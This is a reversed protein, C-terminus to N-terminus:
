TEPSYSDYFLKDKDSKLGLPNLLKQLREVEIILSEKKSSEEDLQACINDKYQIMRDMEIIHLDDLEMFNEINKLLTEFCVWREYPTTSNMFNEVIKQRQIKRCFKKGM